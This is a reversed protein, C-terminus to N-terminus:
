VLFDYLTEIMGIQVLVLRLKFVQIRCPFVYDDHDMIEDPSLEIFFIHEFYPEPLCVSVVKFIRCSKLLKM